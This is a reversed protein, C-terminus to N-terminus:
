ALTRSLRLSPPPSAGRSLRVSSSCLGSGSHRASSDQRAPRTRPPRSAEPTCGELTRRARSSALSSECIQPSASTTHCPQGSTGSDCRRRRPGAASALAAPLTASVGLALRPSSCSACHWCVPWSCRRHNELSPRAAPARAKFMNGLLLLSGWASTSRGRLPARPAATKLLAAQSSPSTSTSSRRRMGHSRGRGEERGPRRPALSTSRRSNKQSCCAHAGAPASPRGWLAPLARLSASARFLATSAGGGRAPPCSPPQVARM